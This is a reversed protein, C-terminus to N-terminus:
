RFRSPSLCTSRWQHCSAPGRSLGGHSPLFTNPTPTRHWAMGARGYQMEFHDFHNVEANWMVSGTFVTCDSSLLHGESSWLFLDQVTVLSIAREYFRLRVPFKRDPEADAAIPTVSTGDGYPAGV